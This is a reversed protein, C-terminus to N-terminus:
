RSRSCWRAYFSQTFFRLPFPSGHNSAVTQQLNCIAFQLNCFPAHCSSGIDFPRSEDGHPVTVAVKIELCMQEQWRAEGSKCNAIQLKCNAIGGDIDGTGGALIGKM